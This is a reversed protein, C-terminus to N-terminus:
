VQRRQYVWGGNEKRRELTKGTRRKLTADVMSKVANTVGRGQLEATVEAASRPADLWGEAALQDITESIGPMRPAADVLQKLAKRATKLGALEEPSIGVIEINALDGEGMGRRVFEALQPLKEPKLGAMVAGVTEVAVADMGAILVNVPVRKETASHFLYTGDLVALDIGGTAQAIDALLHPYIENKHHKAKGVMPTCGFLNKLVAGKIFSRLIHISVFVNPKFLASALGMEEGAITLVRAQPDDSLSYPVVRDSFLEGYCTQLREMAPGCYNDSEALRVLPAQDFADALAGVTEVCAHHRSKPDFIGVKITVEREPTNISGLGGLLELANRMAARYDEHIHVVAVKASM